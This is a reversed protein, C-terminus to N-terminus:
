LLDTEEKTHIKNLLVKLESTREKINRDIMALCEESLHDPKDLEESM